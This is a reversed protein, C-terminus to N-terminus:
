ASVGKRHRMRWYSGLLMLLPLGFFFPLMYPTWYHTSFWAQELESHWLLSLWFAVAGLLLPLWKWQPLGLSWTLCCTAAWLTSAAKVLMGSLWITIVIIELRELFQGLSIQRSLAYVPYTFKETLQVGFVLISLAVLITLLLGALFNGWLMSKTAKAPRNIQFIFPGLVLFEAFWGTTPWAGRMIPSIGHVFWPQIRTLDVEALTGVIVVSMGVLTLMIVLVALRTIVESGAYAAYCTSLAFLLGIVLSPTGPLLAIASFDVINRIVLSTLFLSIAAVLLLALRGPWKGLAFEAVEGFGMTPHRRALLGLPISIPVTGLAIGALGALWADTGAAKAMPQPLILVQAFSNFLCLLLAFQQSSIQAERM